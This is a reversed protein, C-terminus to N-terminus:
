EKRKDIYNLLIDRASDINIDGKKPLRSLKQQFVSASEMEEKFVYWTMLSPMYEVTFREKTDVFKFRINVIDFM